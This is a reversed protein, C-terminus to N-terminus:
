AALMTSPVKFKASFELLHVFWLRNMSFKVMTETVLIPCLM